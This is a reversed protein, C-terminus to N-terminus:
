KWVDFPQISTQVIPSSASTQNILNILPSPGSYDEGVMQLIKAWDFTPVTKKPM